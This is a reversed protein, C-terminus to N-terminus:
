RSRDVDSPRQASASADGSDAARSVARAAMAREGFRQLERTARRLKTRVEDAHRLMEDVEARTLEM